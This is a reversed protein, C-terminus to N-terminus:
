WTTKGYMNCPQTILKIAGNPCLPKCKACGSCKYFDIWPKDEQCERFIANM